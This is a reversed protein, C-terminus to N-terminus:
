APTLSDEKAPKQKHRGFLRRLRLWLARLGRPKELEAIRVNLRENAQRLTSLEDTLQAQREDMARAQEQREADLAARLDDQDAHRRTEEDRIQQSLRSITDEMEKLRARLQVNGERSRQMLEDIRQTFESRATESVRQETAEIQAALERATQTTTDRAARATDEIQVALEQDAERTRKELGRVEEVAVETAASRATHEAVEAAAQEIAPTRDAITADVKENVYTHLQEGIQMVGGRLTRRLLETMVAGMVTTAEGISSDMREVLSAPPRSNEPEVSTAPYHESVPHEEM